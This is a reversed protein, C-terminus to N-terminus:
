KKVAERSAAFRKKRRGDGLFTSQIEDTHFARFNKVFVDTGTFFGHTTMLM